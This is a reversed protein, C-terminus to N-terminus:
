AGDFEFAGVISGAAPYLSVLEETILPAYRDLRGEALSAEALIGLSLQVLSLSKPVSTSSFETIRHEICDLANAITAELQSRPGHHCGRILQYMNGTFRVWSAPMLEAPLTGGDFRARFFGEIRKQAAVEPWGQESITESLGDFGAVLSDMQEVAARLQAVLRMRRWDVREGKYTLAHTTVSWAHEFATRIQVEFAIAALPGSDEPLASAPLRAIFRTADFRFVAPDKQTTGRRRLAVRSFRSDLFDIVPTEDAVTPIVIACAFLDDLQSWSPFRGTEIKEALSEEDKLRGVYAFGQKEAFM